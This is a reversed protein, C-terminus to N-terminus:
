VELSVTVMVAYKVHFLGEPADEPKYHLAVLDIHDRDDELLFENIHFDFFPLPNRQIYAVVDDFNTMAALIDRVEEWAYDDHAGVTKRIRISKWLCLDAEICKFKDMDFGRWRDVYNPQKCESEGHLCGSCMCMVDRVNVQLKKGANMISHMHERTAHVGKWKKTNPRKVIKPTFHITMM